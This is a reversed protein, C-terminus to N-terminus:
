ACWMPHSVGRRNRMSVIAPNTAAIIPDDTVNDPEVAGTSRAGDAAGM